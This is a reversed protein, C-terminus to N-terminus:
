RAVGGVLERDSRSMVGVAPTVGTAAIGRDLARRRRTLGVAVGGLVLAVVGGLIGWAAAGVTAVLGILAPGGCCAVPALLLLWALGVGDRGEGASTCCSGGSRPAPAASARPRVEEPRHRGQSTM